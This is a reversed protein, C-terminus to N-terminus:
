SGLRRKSEARRRIRTPNGRKSHRQALNRRKRAARKASVAGSRATGNTTAIFAGRCRPTGESHPTLMGLVAAAAVSLQLHTRRFMSFIIAAYQLITM